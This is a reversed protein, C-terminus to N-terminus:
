GILIETKKNDAENIFTFPKGKLMGLQEKANLLEIGYIKGDSAIDILLEDSIRITNVQDTKERLRIYAVNYKSDYSLEM